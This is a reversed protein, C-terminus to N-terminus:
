YKHNLYYWWAYRRRHNSLYLPNSQNMYAEREFSISHYAKSHNLNHQFLRIIYEVAYWLYFFVWLMEKGQETHILEHTIDKTTLRTDLGHVFLVGFLNIAKYPAPPFSRTNIIRM